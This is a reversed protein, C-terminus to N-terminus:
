PAPTTEAEFAIKTPVVKATQAWGDPVEGTTTTWARSEGPKLPAAVEEPTYQGTSYKAGVLPEWGTNRLIAGSADTLQAVLNLVTITKTGNNTVTTGIGWGDKPGDALGALNVPEVKVDGFALNPMYEAVALRNQASKVVTGDVWPNEKVFTDWAEKTNEAEAKAQHIETREDRLAKKQKSSPFKKLVADYDALAKSARAKEIMLEELRDQAGLLRSGSPGTAIYAEWAEITDVKKTDEYPDACSVLLALLLSRM